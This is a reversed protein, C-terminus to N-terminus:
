ALLAFEGDAKPEQYEGGYVFGETKDWWWITSVNTEHLIVTPDGVPNTGHQISVLNILDQTLVKLDDDFNRKSM